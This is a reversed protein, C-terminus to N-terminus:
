NERDLVTSEEDCIIFTRMFWADSQPRMLSCQLIDSWIHWYDALFETHTKEEKKKYRHDQFFIKGLWHPIKVRTLTRISKTPNEDVESIFKPIKVTEYQHCYQKSCSVQCGETIEKCWLCIVAFKLFTVIEWDFHEETMSGILLM